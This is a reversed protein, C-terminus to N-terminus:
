WDLLTAAITLWCDHTFNYLWYDEKVKNKMYQSEYSAFPYWYNTYNLLYTIKFSFSFEKLFDTIKKLQYIENVPKVQSKTIRDPKCKFNKIINLFVSFPKSPFFIFVFPCCFNGSLIPLPYIESVLDYIVTESYEGHM